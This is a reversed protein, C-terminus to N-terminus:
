RQSYECFAEFCAGRGHRGALFMQGPGSVGGTIELTEGLRAEGLFGIQFRNITKGEMGGPMYDGIFDAYVTNNLHGNYDIDSYRIERHGCPRMEAPPHLKGPLPCGWLEGNEIPLQYSDVRDPRLIKHNEVDVLVFASVSEIVPAGSNDFFTYCRFFRVGRAGYSQTFVTLEEGLLPYRHIISSAKSLVFAMGDEYMVAYGVNGEKLHREGVEQQYKLIASLRLRREQDADFTNVVIPYRYNKPVKGNM